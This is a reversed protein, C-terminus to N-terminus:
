EWIPKLEFARLYSAKVAGRSCTVALARNKADPFVILPLYVRGANGYVEVSARDLLIKLQIVGDVPEIRASASGCSLQRADCDYAVEIGRLNLVARAGAAPTFEVELEFLEGSLRSLPNEGPQLALNNWQHTKTRLVKLEDIPNMRLRLGEKESHLTLESPVTMQRNFPMGAHAPGEMWTIQVRREKPVNEWTMTAYYNGRAVLSQIRDKTSAPKGELTRFVHGDFTGVIYSGDIFIMVWKRNGPNGDVPLQFFDVCGCLEDGYSDQEVRSEFVWNTLNASSYFGVARLRKGEPSTFFDFTPAVWRRSSAFWFPRPTDIRDGEHVLVPNGEYDTFTRGRDNSYALCLGSRTRLYFAVLVDESGTKRGLQNRADVFAAGSFCDGTRPNPFLVAPLEEWHVLDKSVAHGWSMNGWQTGFPNHQYFLHYEGKYFILGNPDNLWGRRATFHFQPRCLERYLNGSNKIEDSQDISKLGASDEPLESVKLAARKGQFPVVNIFAWWDPEADALEIDFSRPPQGEIEILTPRKPAGNKIPFNLFPKTLTIERAVNTLVGPAKRDSQVIEDVNIHGWGGTANDVIQIVGRKGTFEGVDWSAPALAESGGLKDNPGTATRVVKGEVLLNLCLKEPDKGGGILFNIFRREIAFEPSTLTGTSKDGGYFSSVLGKGKFGDVRMQNPLTGRAPGPGFAEGTVKWDGYSAGEFDAMLIDEAARSALPALTLLSVLVANLLTKPSRDRHADPAEPGGNKIPFNLFPKTLTIERTVNTLLRPPRHHAQASQNMLQSLASQGALAAASAAIALLVPVM